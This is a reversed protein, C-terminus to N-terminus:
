QCLLGDVVYPASHTHHSFYTPLLLILKSLQNPFNLDKTIIQESPCQMCKEFDEKLEILCRGRHCGQPYHSFLFDDDM